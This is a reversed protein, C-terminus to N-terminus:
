GFVNVTRGHEQFEVFLAGRMDWFMTSMEKSASPVVKFKTLDAIRQTEM